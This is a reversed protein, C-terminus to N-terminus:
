DAQWRRHSERKGLTRWHANLRRYVCRALDMQVRSAHEPVETEIVIPDNRDSTTDGRIPLDIGFDAKILERIM